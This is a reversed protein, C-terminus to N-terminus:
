ESAQKHQTKILPNGLRTFTYEIEDKLAQAEQASASLEQQVKALKKTLANRERRTRSHALVEEGLMTAAKDREVALADREATLERVKQGLREVAWLSTAQQRDSDTGRMREDM